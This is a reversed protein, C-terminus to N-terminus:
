IFFRSIIDDAILLGKASLVYSQNTEYMYGRSIFDAAKNKFGIFEVAHEDSFFSKEIGWKTRLGIIMKENFMMRRNLVETEHPAEGQQIGRIYRQNNPLNFQRSSGNYSHASPGVGLYPKNKWYSSNHRSIENNRCFNSIEYQEFGKEGAKQLLIEFQRASQEEDVNKSKGQRIYKELPTNKEVTLSYCSLHSIDFSLALDLNKKWDTDSLDPIGYILDISLNTFGTKIAHTIADKADQMSHARNMMQLDADRFSQIGISLRNIGSRKLKGLYEPKLNEPNAELTIEASKEVQYLEHITQLIRNIKSIELLSPTGGGFYISEINEGQLYNKRLMLERCIADTMPEVYHLSTTFHFDCYNCAQSCFPIHIYIGAM